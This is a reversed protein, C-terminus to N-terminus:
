ICSFYRSFVCVFYASYVPLSGYTIRLYIHRMLAYVVFLCFLLKFFVLILALFILSNFDFMFM